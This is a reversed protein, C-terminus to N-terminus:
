DIRQRQRRTSGIELEFQTRETETRTETETETRFCREIQREFSPNPLVHSNREALSPGIERESARLHHIPDLNQTMVRNSKIAGCGTRRVIALCENCLEFRPEDAGFLKDRDRALKSSM